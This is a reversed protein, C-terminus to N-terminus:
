AGHTAANFTARSTHPAGAADKSSLTLSHPSAQRLFCILTVRAMHTNPLVRRLETYLTILNKINVQAKDALISIIHPRYTSLVTVNLFKLNMVKQKGTCCKESTETRTVYLFCAISYSLFCVESENIISILRALYICYSHKRSM